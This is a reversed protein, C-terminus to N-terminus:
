PTGGSPAGAAPAIKREGPQTGPPIDLPLTVIFTAGRGPASDVDIRGGHASVIGWSVSLGLGTGEPRTTFFPEFLRDRHDPAIGRGTDCVVLRAGGGPVPEARLTLTGGAERMAHLGNTALNVLVQHLGSPDATVVVPSAAEVVIRAQTRMAEPEVLAAVDRVIERLDTPRREGTAPRAFRLLNQTIATGRRATREIMGLTARLEAPDRERVADEACGQIGGLLNNFEHAVGGALTGLSAMKDAHRLAREKGEIEATKQRVREELTANLATLEAHARGLSETMGNFSRALRGVEDDGTVAIRTGLQGRGVEQTAEVLRRVPALVMRWLLWGHVLFLVAIFALM